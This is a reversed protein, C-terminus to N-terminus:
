RLSLLVIHNHFYVPLFYFQVIVYNKLNLKNIKTAVHLQRTDHWFQSQRLLCSSLPHFAIKQVSHTLVVRTNNVSMCPYGRALKITLIWSLAHPAVPPIIVHCRLSVNCANRLMPCGWILCAFAYPAMCIYQEFQKVGIKGIECKLAIGRSNQWWLFTEMTPFKEPWKWLNGYLWLNPCLREKYICPNVILNKWFYLRLVDSIWGNRNFYIILM